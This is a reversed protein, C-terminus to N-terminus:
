LNTTYLININDTLTVVTLCGPGFNTRHNSSRPGARTEMTASSRKFWRWTLKSPCQWSVIRGPSLPLTPFSLRSLPDTSLPKEIPPPSGTQPPAFPQQSSAPRLSNVLTPCTNANIKGLTNRESGNCKFTGWAVRGIGHSPFIRM